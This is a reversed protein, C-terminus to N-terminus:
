EIRKYSEAFIPNGEHDMRIQTFSYDDIIVKFIHRNNNKTVNMSRSGYELTEILSDNEVRYDGYGFWEISDNSRLRTWMIKSHSYMKIQKTTSSSKITDVTGDPNYNLYNIIEWTGELSHSQSKTESDNKAITSEPKNMCSFLFFSALFLILLAKM